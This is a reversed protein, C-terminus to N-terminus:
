VGRYPCGRGGRREASCASRPASWSGVSFGKDGIATEPADGILECVLDYHDEFLDYEQRSASDRSSPPPRSRPPHAATGDQPRNRKGLGLQEAKEGYAGMIGMRVRM